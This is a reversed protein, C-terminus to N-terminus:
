DHKGREERLALKCNRRKSRATRMNPGVIASKGVTAKPACNPFDSHTWITCVATGSHQDATAIGRPAAEEM